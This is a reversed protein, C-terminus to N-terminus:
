QYFLLTGGPLRKLTVTWAEASDYFNLTLDFEGYGWNNQYFLWGFYGSAYSLNNTQVAGGQKAIVLESESAAITEPLWAANYPVVCSGNVRTWKRDSPGPDVSTEGFAAHIVVLDAALTEVVEESADSFTLTVNYVDEEPLIGAACVRWLYNSVSRTFNTMFASKMGTVSLEAQVADDHWDWRLPVENTFVTSWQMNHSPSVNLMIPPSSAASASGRLVLAAAMVAALAKLKM